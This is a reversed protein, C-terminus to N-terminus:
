GVRAALLVIGAASVVGLVPVALAAARTPLVLEFLPKDDGIRQLLPGLPCNGGGLAVLLGEAALAAVAALTWRGAEGRWAGIYVLAICGLFGISILGHAARSARVVTLQERDSGMPRTV